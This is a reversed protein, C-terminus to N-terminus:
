QTLIANESEMDVIVGIIEKRGSFNNRTNSYICYGIGFIILGVLIFGIIIFYVVFGALSSRWTFPLDYGYVSKVIPYGIGHALLILMCAFFYMIAMTLYSKHKIKNKNTFWCFINYKCCRGPIGRSCDADHCLPFQFYMLAFLLTFIILGMAGDDCPSVNKECQVWPNTVTRALALLVLGVLGGIMMFFMYFFKTYWSCCESADFEESIQTVSFPSRCIGCKINKTSYQKMLCDECLRATCLTNNCPRLLKKENTFCAYCINQDNQTMTYAYKILISYTVAM